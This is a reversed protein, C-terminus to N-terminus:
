SRASAHSAPADDDGSGFRRHAGASPAPPVRGRRRARCARDAVPGARLPPARPRPERPQAPGSPRTREPPHTRVSKAIPRSRVTSAEVTPKRSSSSRGAPDGCGVTSDRDSPEGDHPGGPPPPSRPDVRIGAGRDRGRGHDRLLPPTGAPLVGANRDLGEMRRRRRSAPAVRATQILGPLERSLEAWDLTPDAEVRYRFFAGGPVM